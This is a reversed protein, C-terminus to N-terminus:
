ELGTSGWGNDGRDTDDLEDVEIFDVPINSIVQMQAIREGVKYDPLTPIIKYFVAKYQGTYSIDGTGIGNSLIM